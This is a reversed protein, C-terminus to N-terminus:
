GQGAPPSPSPALWFLFERNGKDGLLPSSTMGLIRIRNGVAWRVFRGIVAAHVLPDTVVGGKGVEDPRAEFQPKLLVIARGGRRLHKFAPSLVRELSIFSVDAVVVDVPEPLEYGLRANTREMSVVRSDNLLSNHLQGRGSDVAYVRVAGHQLACDTFGGTSAGIDLVTKGALDVGFQAIAAELKLGGRSVYRPKEKILVPTGSPVLSGATPTSRGRWGPLEVEGAMVMAQAMEVSAALGREVILRDLRV